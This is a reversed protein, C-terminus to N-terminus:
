LKDRVGEGEGALDFEEDGEEEEELERWRQEARHLAEDQAHGDEPEVGDDDEGLHSTIAEDAAQAFVPSDVDEEPTDSSLSEVSSPPSSASEEALSPTEEVSADPYIDDSNPHDDADGDQAREKEEYDTIQSRATALREQEYQAAVEAEEEEEDGIFGYDDEDELSIERKSPQEEEQEGSAPEEEADEEYFARAPAATEVERYPTSTTASTEGQEEPQEDDEDETTPSPPSPPATPEPAVEGQEEVEVHSASSDCASPAAVSLEAPPEASPVFESDDSPSPLSDFHASSPAPSYAPEDFRPTSTPSNTPSASTSPELEPELAPEPLAAVDKEDLVPFPEEPETASEEEHATEDELEVPEQAADEVEHAERVQEEIVAQEPAVSPEADPEPKKAEVGRSMEEQQEPEEQELEAAAAEQEVPATTNAGLGYTAGVDGGFQRDLMEEIEEESEYEEKEAQEAEEEDVARLPAAEIGELVEHEEGEAGKREPAEEWLTQEKEVNIPLQTEKEVEAEEDAAAPATGTKDVDLPPPVDREDLHSPSLPVTTGEPGAVDRELEAEEAFHVIGFPTSPNLSPDVQDQTLEISDPSPSELDESAPSPPSDPSSFPMTTSEPLAPEDAQKVNLEDAAAAAPPLDVVEAEMAIPSSSPLPPEIRNEEVIAEIDGLQENLDPRSPLLSKLPEFVKEEEEAEEVPTPAAKEEAAEEEEVVSELDPKAVPLVDPTEGALDPIDPLSPTPREEEAEEEVPVDEEVHGQEAEEKRIQAELEGLEDRLKEEEEESIGVEEQEPEAARRLSPLPPPVQHLDADGQEIVGEGHSNAPFPSPAPTESSPASPAPSPRSDAGPEVLNAPLDYASDTHSPAPVDAPTEPESPFDSPSDFLPDESADVFDEEEEDFEEAAPASRDTSTDYQQEEQVLETREAEEPRSSLVDEFPAAAPQPVEKGGEVDAGEQAKRAQALSTVGATVAGVVATAAATAHAIEQMVERRVVEGAGLSKAEHVHEGVESAKPVAGLVASGGKAAIKGFFGAVRLGRDLVRKKFIHACVAAFFAFAGFLLLRDVVDARELSTILNKSATMLSSLSSYEDSTLQMTQTQSQLLENSVLSRDVEQQMLQLTRRLGETVDSTASMLADDGGQGAAPSKARRMSGYSSPSERGSGGGQGGQGSLLEERASLHSFSDIQRKSTVVAQRYLKTCAELRQQILKVHDAAALRDRARDLDDVELKLEDLDRRCGALESRVGAALEEHFPLPGRCDALQPIQFSELDQLRRLLSDVLSVLQQPLPAPPPPPSKM